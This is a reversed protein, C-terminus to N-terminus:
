YVIECGTIKLSTEVFLNVIFYKPLFFLEIQFAKTIVIAGCTQLDVQVSYELDMSNSFDM